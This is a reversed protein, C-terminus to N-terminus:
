LKREYTCRRFFIIVDLFLIKGRVRDGFDDLEDAVRPLAPEVVISRKPDQHTSYFFQKVLARFSRGVFSVCVLFVSSNITM